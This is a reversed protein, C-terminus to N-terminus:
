APCTNSIMAGPPFTHRRWGNFVMSLLRNRWHRIMKGGSGKLKRIYAWHIHWNTFAWRQEPMVIAMRCRKLIAAQRRSAAAERVWLRYARYVPDRMMRTAEAIRGKNKAYAAAKAKWTNFARSAGQNYMKVVAQEASAWARHTKAVLMRWAVFCRTVTQNRWYGLAQKM